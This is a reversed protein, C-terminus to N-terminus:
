IQQVTFLITRNETFTTTTLDRFYYCNYFKAGPSIFDDIMMEYHIGETMDVLSGGGVDENVDVIELAVPVMIIIHCDGVDTVVTFIDNNRYLVNTMESSSSVWAYNLVATPVASGNNPETSITSSENIEDAISFRELTSGVWFTASTCSTDQVLYNLITTYEVNCVINTVTLKIGSVDYLPINEITVSNIGPYAPLAPTGTYEMVVSMSTTAKPGYIKLTAPEHLPPLM